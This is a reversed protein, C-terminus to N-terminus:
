KIKEKETLDEKKPPINVVTLGPVIGDKTINLYPKMGYQYRKLLQNLEETFQQLKKDEPM